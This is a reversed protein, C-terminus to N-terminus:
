EVIRIIRSIRSIRSVRMSRETHTNIVAPGLVLSNVHPPPPTQSSM